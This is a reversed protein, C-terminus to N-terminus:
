KFRANYVFLTTLMFVIGVCMLILGKMQGTMGWGVFVLVLGVVFFLLMLAIRILGHDKLFKM